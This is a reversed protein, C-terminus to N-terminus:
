RRQGSGGGTRGGGGTTRPPTPAPRVAGTSPRSVPVSPAPRAAGLSQRSLRGRDSASRTEGGRGLGELAAPQRPAQPAPPAALGGQPGGRARAPAGGGPRREAGPPGLPQPAEQARGRFAERADVGPRPGQGFQQRVGPDYYAVGRRHGADHRWTPNTITTRNFTNFNTVNIHVSHHGWDFGGWLAAGVAVGLGFSLVHARVVYGPPYWYYPPYAPYWWPGYVVTPDYIPVYVLQPNAPEIQIGQPEVVVAQQPTSQLYGAAQAKARLLQVTAMVDQPQALFADGLKQTWDLKGNMMALAQPFATLSKVSPDWPQQQMAAELQPGTVYPYAQVWRAAEVVELPYTAAMLIQALLADPYLAIPALLQDLAEAGFTPPAPAGAPPPPPFQALAGPPAVLLLVLCGLLAHRAADKMTM